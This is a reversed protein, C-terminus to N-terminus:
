LPAGPGEPGSSAGLVTKRLGYLMKRIEVTEKSLDQWAALALVGYDRSLLLQYELEFASKISIELFRAYEKNTSAGCGEVINFAISEAATTMQSKLATFGTRPFRNCAKRLELNHAHARAWVHLRKYDQM